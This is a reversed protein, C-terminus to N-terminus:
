CLQEAPVAFIRVALRGNRETSLRRVEAVIDPAVEDPVCTLVLSNLGPWVPTGERRGHKGNGIAGNFRTYGSVHLQNLIEFIHSEVGDEYIIFLLQMAIDEM